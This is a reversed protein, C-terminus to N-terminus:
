RTNYLSDMRALINMLRQKEEKLSNQPFYIVPTNINIKRKKRDIRVPYFYITKGFKYYYDRALRLFGLNNSSWNNGETDDLFDLFIAINDGKALADITIAITEFIKRSGKYVPVAKVEHMIWLVIPEIIVTLLKCFPKFILPMSGFLERELHIRCSKRYVMDSVVWPRFEYPFYIEMAIPGHIGAHNCVFVCPEKGVVNGEGTIIYERLIKKLVWKLM